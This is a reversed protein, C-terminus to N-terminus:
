PRRALFILHGAFQIKLFNRECSGLGFVSGILDFIMHLYNRNWILSFIKSRNFLQRNILLSADSGPRIENLNFGADNFVRIIGYPTFNFISYSHYPEMYSVSGIFLGNPKLVRFAEAILKDPFRVHELVQICYVVDFKNSPYPLDVGNFTRISENKRTRKKVEPSEEVDVGHWHTRPAIKKFLDISNGEGCGLDLVNTSDKFVKHFQQVYDNLSQRSSHDNPLYERISIFNELARIKARLKSMFPDEEMKQNISPVESYTGLIM